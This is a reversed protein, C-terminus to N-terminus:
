RRTHDVFGQSLRMMLIDRKLLVVARLAVLLVFSAGIVALQATISVIGVSALWGQLASTLGSSEGSEQAFLTEAVPLLVVLGAGELLAAVAIVALTSAVGGKAYALIAALLDAGGRAALLDRVESAVDERGALACHLLTGVRHRKAAFRARALDPPPTDIADLRLAPRLLAALRRIDPTIAILRGM